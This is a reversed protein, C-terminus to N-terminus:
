TAPSSEDAERVMLQRAVDQPVTIVLEGIEIIPEGGVPHNVEPVIFFSGPILGHDQIWLLREELGEMQEYIRDVIYRGPRARDLPVVHLTPSAADTLGPIPNGHPCTTPRGLDEWLAQEVRQSLAHELREAERHAEVLGLGLRDSLWREALRHRRVVAEAKAWGRASLRVEPSRSVIDGSKELRTLARSVSVASVGLYEAIRVAQVQRNETTLVYIAELYSQAGFPASEADSKSPM